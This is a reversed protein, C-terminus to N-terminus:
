GAGILCWIKSVSTSDPVKKQMLCRDLVLIEELVWGAGYGAGYYIFPDVDPKSTNKSLPQPSCWCWVISDLVEDLM